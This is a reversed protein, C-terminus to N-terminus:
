NKFNSIGSRYKMEERIKRDREVDRSRNTRYQNFSDPASGAIWGATMIAGGIGLAIFPRSFFLGGFMVVLGVISSILIPTRDSEAMVDNLHYEYEAACNTCIKHFYEGTFRELDIRTKAKEPIAFKKRCANCTIVLAM